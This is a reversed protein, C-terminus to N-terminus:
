KGIVVRVQLNTLGSVKESSAEDLRVRVEIVRGDINASPDANIVDQRQIQLGIRDVKGGLEGEFSDSTIRATQGIQVRHIDSEYVQAIAVMERTQGLEVIGENAVREGPYTHIELIQGDRPARIEALKLDAEAQRLAAQASRVEAESVAVDVPRVEAIKDFTARAEAIKELGARDIQNLKAKAEEIQERKALRIKTLEAEAEQIQQDYTNQIRTLNVKAEQLRQEATQRDLRKRDRSEESIAGQAHLQEHRREENLANNYEAEIRTITARQADLEGRQQAQLRAIKAEVADIDTRRETELRAITARQADLDTQREADLRAITAQQADLEGTKAGAKVRELKAEALSVQERAQDVAARLRDYNDLIAIADGARVWDGESVLLQEIRNGEAVGPASVAIVEGAPELRGLATVTTPMPLSAAAVPTEEVQGSKWLVYATVGGVGVTAVTALTLLRRTLTPTSAFDAATARHVM